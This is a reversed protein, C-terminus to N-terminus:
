CVWLLKVYVSGEKWKKEKNTIKLKRSEASPEKVVMVVKAGMRGKFHETFQTCIM